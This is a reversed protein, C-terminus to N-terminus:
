FKLAKAIDEESETAADIQSQAKNSIAVFPLYIVTAVALNFLSLLLAMISGNTNFFAGLGVPM